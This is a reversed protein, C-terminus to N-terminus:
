CISLLKKYCNELKVQNYMFTKQLTMGESKRYNEITKSNSARLYISIICIYNMRSLLM